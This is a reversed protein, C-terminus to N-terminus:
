MMQFMFLIILSHYYSFSPIVYFAWQVTKWAFLFYINAKMTITILSIKQEM